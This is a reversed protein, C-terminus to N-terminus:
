AHLLRLRQEYFLANGCATLVSPAECGHMTGAENMFEKTIGNPVM